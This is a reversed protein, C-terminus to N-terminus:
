SRAIRIIRPPELVQPLASIEAAAARIAAEAIEHTTLVIPVVGGQQVPRQLFSDISVGAEAYRNSTTM